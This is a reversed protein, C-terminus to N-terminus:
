GGACSAALSRGREDVGSKSVICIIFLLREFFRMSSDRHSVVTHDCPKITALTLDDVMSFMGATYYQIDLCFPTRGHVILGSGLSRQRNVLQCTANGLEGAM